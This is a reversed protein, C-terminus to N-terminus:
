VLVRDPQNFGPVKVEGRNCVLPLLKNMIRCLYQHMSIPAVQTRVFVVYQNLITQPTGVILNPCLEITDFTRVKLILTIIFQVVLLM